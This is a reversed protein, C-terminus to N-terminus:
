PVWTLSNVVLACAVMRLGSASCPQATCLATSALTCVFGVCREKTTVWLINACSSTSARVVLMESVLEQLTRGESAGEKAMM